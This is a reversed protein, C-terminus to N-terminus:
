YMSRELELVLFGKGRRDSDIGIGRLAGHTAGSGSIVLQKATPALKLGTKSKGKARQM